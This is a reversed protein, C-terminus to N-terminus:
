GDTDSQEFADDLDKFTPELSSPIVWIIEDPLLLDRGHGAADLAVNLRHTFARNGILGAVPAGLEKALIGGLFSVIEGTDGSGIEIMLITREGLSVASVSEAEVEAEGFVQALQDIMQKAQSAEPGLAGIRRVRSLQYDTLDLKSLDASGEPDSPNHGSNSQSM